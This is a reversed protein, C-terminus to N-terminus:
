DEHVSVETDIGKFAAEIGVYKCISGAFLRSGMLRIRGGILAKIM